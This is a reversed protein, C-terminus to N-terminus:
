ARLRAGCPRAKRYVSRTRYTQKAFSNQLPPSGYESPTSALKRAVGCPTIIEGGSGGQPPLPSLRLSYDRAVLGRTPLLQTFLRYLHCNYNHAYEKLRANSSLERASPAKRVGWKKYKIIIGKQLELPTRPIEKM